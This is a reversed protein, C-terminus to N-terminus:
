GAHKVSEGTDSPGSGPLQQLGDHPFAERCVLAQPHHLPSRSASAESRGGVGGWKARGIRDQLLTAYYRFHRYEDVIKDHQRPPCGKRM